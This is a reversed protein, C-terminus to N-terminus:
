TRLLLRNSPEMVKRINSLIKIAPGDTWDHRVFQSTNLAIYRTEECSAAFSCNMLIYASVPSVSFGSVYYVNCDKRPSEKFFDIEAFDMRKEAVAEPM